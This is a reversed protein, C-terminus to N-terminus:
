KLNVQEVSLSIFPKKTEDYDQDSVVEDGL